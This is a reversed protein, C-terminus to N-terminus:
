QLASLKDFIRMYVRLGVDRLPVERKDFLSDFEVGRLVFKLCLGFGHLGHHECTSCKGDLASSVLGYL